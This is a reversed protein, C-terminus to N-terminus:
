ISTGHKKLELLHIKPTSPGENEWKLLTFAGTPYMFMGSNVIYAKSMKGGTSDVLFSALEEFKPNTFFASHCYSLENMQESIAAKVIPNAHGLCSVAAGGTADLIKQGDNLFVYNGEGGVAKKPASHIDRHLVASENPSTSSAM